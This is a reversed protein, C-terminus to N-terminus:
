EDGDDEDDDDDDEDESNKPDAHHNESAEPLTNYEFSANSDFPINVYNSESHGYSPLEYNEPANSDANEIVEQSSKTIQKQFVRIVTSQLQLVLDKTKNIESTLIETRTDLESSLADVSRNIQEQDNNINKTANAINSVPSSKLQEINKSLKDISQNLHNMNQQIHAIEQDYNKANQPVTANLPISVGLTQTITHHGVELKAIRDGLANLIFQLQQQATLKAPMEQSMQPTNVPYGNNTPANQNSVPPYPAYGNPTQTSPPYSSPPGNPKAGNVRRQVAAQNSRM